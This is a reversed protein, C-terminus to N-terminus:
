SSRRSIKEKSLGRTAEIMSLNTLYEEGSSEEDKSPRRPASAQLLDDAVSSARSARHSFKNQLANM